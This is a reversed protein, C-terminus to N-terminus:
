TARPASGSRGDSLIWGITRRDPPTKQWTATLRERIGVLVSDTAQYLELTTGQRPHRVKKTHPPKDRQPHGNFHSAAM